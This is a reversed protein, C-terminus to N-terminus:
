TRIWVHEDVDILRGGALAYMCMCICVTPPPRWDAWWQCVCGHRPISEADQLRVAIVMGGGVRATVRERHVAM